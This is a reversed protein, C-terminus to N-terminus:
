ALRQVTIRQHAWHDDTQVHNKRVWKGVTLSFVSDEFGGARRVVIGEKQPGYFSRLPVLDEIERKLEFEASVRIEKFVPVTALGCRKCMVVVDDWSMWWWHIDDRIGFVFFYSPLADYKISHVAYCWEGFFTYGSPLRYGLQAHDAKARDFSPHKPAGAHSRAFLQRKTWAMNSGDLKETIVLGCNLLANVDKMVKDNSSAGPSWPLHLTRPYKESM